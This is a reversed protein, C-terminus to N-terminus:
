GDELNRVSFSCTQICCPLLIAVTIPKTTTEPESWQSMLYLPRLMRPSNSLSELIDENENVDDSETESDIKAEIADGFRYKLVQPDFRRRKRM